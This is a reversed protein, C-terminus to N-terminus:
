INSINNKERWNENQFIHKILFLRSSYFSHTPAFPSLLYANLKVIQIDSNDQQVSFLM